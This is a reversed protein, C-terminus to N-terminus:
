PDFGGFMSIALNSMDGFGAVAERDAPDVYSLFHELSDPSAHTDASVVVYNRGRMSGDGSGAAGTTGDAM